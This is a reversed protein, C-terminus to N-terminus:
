IYMGMLYGIGDGFWDVVLLNCAFGCAEKGVNAGNGYNEKVNGDLKKAEM